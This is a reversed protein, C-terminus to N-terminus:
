EPHIHYPFPLQWIVHQDLPSEAGKCRSFFNWVCCAHEGRDTKSYQEPIFLRYLFLAYGLIAVTGSQNHLPRKTIEVPRLRLIALGNELIGSLPSTQYLLLSHSSNILLLPFRVQHLHSTFRPDIHFRLHRHHHLHFITQYSAITHFHKSMVSHRNPEALGLSGQPSKM